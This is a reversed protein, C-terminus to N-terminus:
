FLGGDLYLRTNLIETNTLERIGSEIVWDESSSIEQFEVDVGFSSSPQYSLLDPYELIGSVSSAWSPTHTNWYLVHEPYKTSATVTILLDLHCEEGDTVGGRGGTMVVEFRKYDSSTDLLRIIKYSNKNSLSYISAVEVLDGVKLSNVQSYVSAGAKNYFGLTLTSSDSSIAWSDNIPITDSIGFFVSTYSVSIKSTALNVIVSVEIIKGIEVQIVPISFETWSNYFAKPFKISALITSGGATIDRVLIITDELQLSSPIYAFVKNILGRKSFIYRNGYKVATTATLITPSFNSNSRLPSGVFSLTPVVATDVLARMKYKGYDVIDGVTYYAGLLSLLNEPLQMLPIRGNTGLGAASINIRAQTKQLDDM